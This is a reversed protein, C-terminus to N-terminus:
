QRCGVLTSQVTYFTSLDLRTVLEITDVFFRDPGAAEAPINARMDTRANLRANHLQLDKISIKCPCRYWPCGEATDSLSDSSGENFYNMAATWTSKISSFRDSSLM